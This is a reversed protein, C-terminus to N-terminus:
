PAAYLVHNAGLHPPLRHVIPRIATHRLIEAALFRRLTRRDVAGSTTLDRCLSLDGPFDSRAAGLPLMYTEPHRDLPAGRPLNMVSAHLFGIYPAHRVLFDRTLAVDELTEGPLGVLVYVM